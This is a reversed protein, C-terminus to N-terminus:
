YRLFNHFRTTFCIAGSDMVRGSFSLMGLVGSAGGSSQEGGELEGWFVGKQFM